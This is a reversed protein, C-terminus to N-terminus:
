TEFLKRYLKCSELLGEHDGQAAIKGQDLVVILDANVITGLRHAIIFSTRGQSFELIAQQIKTESDADIQSMAEDFILIAPDRLIARAIALRQLQGGSLVAGQEGIITQYGVETQEIFEHAYARKAAAVIQDEGAQPDGYAINTMITENFVIVQQTVIGIQERLSALTAREINQGDIFIRGSDPVFFKPILSLLTTKGSGNPGVIAVMQGAQVKLNIDQLTPQPSNPYTFCVKEMKMSKAMRELPVPDPPDAEFPRDVVEFVRQAAASAVNLRTIVNGLKRGSEAIGALLAVLAFFEEPKIQDNAMWRVAFVMCVCAALAGLTELLPGSAADIKAMRLQQKLLRRTLHDFREEEWSERHYAKVVRIGQLSERLRGLVKSWNELARRTAKKMKRGLLGIVVVAMPLGTVVIVTMQMNIMLALVLMMLIKFPERVTRGLLVVIGSHIKNSDQVFRSMTDTVENSSYFSLPLRIASHYTKKRLGMLTRQSIRRVLYEQIFRLLCRVLTVLMLLVILFTMARYKFAQGEEEPLFRLLAHCLSAYFPADYLTLPLTEIQATPRELRLQVVAGSPAQALRELMGLRDDVQGVATLLDEARIQAVQAPSEETVKVVRLTGPLPRDEDNRVRSAAPVSEVNFGMGSRSTAVARYIWGHLGEDGMLVKMFPLVAGINLSYLIAVALACVVSLIVARYQARAIMLVRGFPKM